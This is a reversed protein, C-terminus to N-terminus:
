VGRELLYLWNAAVMAVAGWRLTLPLRNPLAPLRRGTLALAGARIGGVILALWALTVLPNTALAGLPDLGSLALTSRGAGCTPCPLGAVAKVQCAPLEAAVAPLLAPALRPTILLGAACAVAVAAWLLALQRAPSM